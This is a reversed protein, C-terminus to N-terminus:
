ESQADHFEGLFVEPFQGGFVLLQTLADVPQHALEESTGRLLAMGILEGEIEPFVSNGRIRGLSRQFDILHDLGTRLSFATIAHLQWGIQRHDFLSDDGLLNQGFGFGILM